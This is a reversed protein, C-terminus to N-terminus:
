LFQQEYDNNSNLQLLVVFITVILLCQAGHPVSVAVQLDVFIHCRTESSIHSLEHMFKPTM